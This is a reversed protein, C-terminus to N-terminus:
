SYSWFHKKSSNFNNQIGPIKRNTDGAKVGLILSWFNLSKKDWEGPMPSVIAKEIDKKDYVGFLWKTAPFTGWNLVNTIIRKGDRVLDLKDIDYSWLFPRVYPPIM